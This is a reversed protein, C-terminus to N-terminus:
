DKWFVIKLPYDDDDASYDDDEIYVNLIHKGVALTDVKIFTVIGLQSTIPHVSGIWDNDVIRADDISM